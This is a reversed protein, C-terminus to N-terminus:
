GQVRQARYANKAQLHAVALEAAEDPIFQETQLHNASRANGLM